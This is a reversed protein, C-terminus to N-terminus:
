RTFGSLSDCVNLHRQFNKITLLRSCQVCTHRRCSGLVQLVGQQLLSGLRVMEDRSLPPLPPRRTQRAKAGRQAEADRRDRLVQQLHELPVVRERPLGPASRCPPPIHLLHLPASSTHDRRNQYKRYKRVNKRPKRYKKHHHDKSHSLYSDAISNIIADKDGRPVVAPISPPTVFDAKENRFFFFDRNM